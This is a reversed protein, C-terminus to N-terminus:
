DSLNTPLVYVPNVKSSEQIVAPNKSLEPEVFKAFLETQSLYKVATTFSQYSKNWGHYVAAKDSLISPNQMEVALQACHYHDPVLLGLIECANSFYVDESTLAWHIEISKKTSLKYKAECVDRLVTFQSERFKKINDFTIASICFLMHKRNRISFGGNIGVSYFPTCKMFIDDTLIDGFSAGAYSYTEFVRLFPRYMICDRQFICVIDYKDPITKGWFEASLMIDNYSQISINPVGNRMEIYKDDIAVFNMHPFREKVAAEHSAHSIFMFNWGRSYDTSPTDDKPAMFHMFNYLVAMTLEDYRPEIM